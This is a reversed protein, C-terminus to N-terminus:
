MGAMQTVSLRALVIRGARMSRPTDRSCKQLWCQSAILMPPFDADNMARYQRQCETVVLDIFPATSRPGMGALIGIIPTAM